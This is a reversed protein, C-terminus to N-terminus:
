GPKNLILETKERKYYLPNEHYIESFKTALNLGIKTEYHKWISVTQSWTTFSVM